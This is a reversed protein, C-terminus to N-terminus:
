AGCVNCGEQKYLSFSTIGGSNVLHEHRRTQHDISPAEALHQLIAIAGLNASFSSMMAIGGSGGPAYRGGAISHEMQVHNDQSNAGLYTPKWNRLAKDFSKQACDICPTRPPYILEGSSMLHADFGGAVFLAIGRVQLHRGLKLSTHGIYPEDCTNIVLDADDPIWAELASEPHLMERYCYVDANANIRHLFSKLLDVKPRGIDAVGVHPHRDTSSSSAHGYDVLVWHMVGARVLIEAIAGGVAGCGLLVVKKAALLKQTVAGPRLNIWDDLFAEQRNYRPSPEPTSQVDVLLGQSSLFHLLQLAAQEDFRGLERLRDRVTRTGDLLALLEVVPKGAVLELRKRTTMWHFVIRLTDPSETPSVFIDVTDKVRLLQDLM